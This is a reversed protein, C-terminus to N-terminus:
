PKESAYTCTSAPPMNGASCIVEPSICVIEPFQTIYVEFSYGERHGAVSVSIEGADIAVPTVYRIGILYFHM